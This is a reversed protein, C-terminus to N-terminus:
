RDRSASEKTTVQIYCQELDVHDLTVRVHAM